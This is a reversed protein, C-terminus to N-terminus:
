LSASRPARRQAMGRVRLSKRRQGLRHLQRRGGRADGSEDGERCQLAQHRGTFTEPVRFRKWRVKGKQGDLEEALDVKKEPPYAIHFGKQGQGDFPGIVRWDMLFGLHEAVSVNVGAAKLGAAADRGQQIDRSKELAQRFLKTSIELEGAQASREAKELVLAVAEMRFEPDDLWDPVLRASTGPRARDLLDLALRRARGNKAANKVFAELKGIDIRKGGAKLEREAVQDFALRLWNAAVTDSTNMGELLAPLVGADAQSLRSWAARGEATGRDQKLVLAIDGEVTTDGAWSTGAFVVLSRFFVHM